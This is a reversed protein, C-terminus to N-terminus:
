KFKVEMNLSTFYKVDDLKVGALKVDNIALKVPVIEKSVGKLVDKIINVSNTKAM